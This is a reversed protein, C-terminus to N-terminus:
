IVNNDELQQQKVQIEAFFDEAYGPNEKSLAELFNVYKGILKDFSTKDKASLINKRVEDKISTVNTQPKTTPQTKIKSKVKKLDLEEFSLVDGHLQLAKLIARDIARKEAVAVFYAFGNNDPHAEGLSSYKKNTHKITATGKCVIFRIKGDAVKLDVDTEIGYYNAMKEIDKHYLAVKGNDLHYCQNDNILQELYQKPTINNM